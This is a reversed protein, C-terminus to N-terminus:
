NYTYWERSHARQEVSMFNGTMTICLEGM